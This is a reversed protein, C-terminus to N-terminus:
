EDDDPPDLLEDELEDFRTVSMRPQDAVELGCGFGILGRSSELGPAPRTILQQLREKDGRLIVKTISFEFPEATEIYSEYYNM